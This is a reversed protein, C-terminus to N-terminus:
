GGVIRFCNAIQDFPYQLQVVRFLGTSNQLGGQETIRARRPNALEPTVELKMLSALGLLSHPLVVGNTSRYLITRHQKRENAQDCAAPRLRRRPLSKADIARRRWLRGVRGARCRERIAFMCLRGSS